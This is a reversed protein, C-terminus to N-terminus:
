LGAEKFYKVAGKHYPVGFGSKSILKPNYGNLVGHAKALAKKNLHIAKVAKYVVDDSVNANVLVLYDFGVMKVPQTIYPMRKSPKVTTFYAGPTVAQLKGLTSPDAKMSIFRIGVKAHAKRVLGSGPALYSGEAKGAILAATGKAFNPVPVGIVDSLKMGETAFAGKVLAGVLKQATFESPFKRGKFDALTRITSDKRVMFGTQFELVRALVRLNKLKTGNFSGTGNLAMNAEVSSSTSMELKGQDVQPLFINSGGIGIARSVLDSKDSIVKAVAAAIGYSLSGQPLAGISVPKAIAGTTAIAIGTGLTIGITIKKFIRM